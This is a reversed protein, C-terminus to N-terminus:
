SLHYTEKMLVSGILLPIYLLSHIRIDFCAPLRTHLLNHLNDYLIAFFLKVIIRKWGYNIGTLFTHFSKFMKYFAVTYQWLEPIIRIWFIM